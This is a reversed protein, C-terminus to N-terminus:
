AVSRQSCDRDQERPSSNHEVRRWDLNTADILSTDVWWADAVESPQLKLEALAVNSSARAAFGHMSVAMVKGRPTITRDDVLRGLREWGDARLDLGVEEKAERIATSEDDGDAEDQRGGPLAVNGSWPDKPNVSRRIFLVQEQGDKIRFIAAIASRKPAYKRKGRPASKLADLFRASARPAM